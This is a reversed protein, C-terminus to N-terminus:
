KLVLFSRETTAATVPLHEFTELLIKMSPYFAEPCAIYADLATDSLQIDTRKMNATDNISLPSLETSSTEM